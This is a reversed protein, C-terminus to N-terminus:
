AILVLRGHRCASGIHVCVCVRVCVNQMSLYKRSSDSGCQASAGSTNERRSRTATCSPEM